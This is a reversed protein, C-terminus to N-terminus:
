FNQTQRLSSALPPPKNHMAHLSEISRRNFRIKEEAPVFQISDARFDSQVSSGYGFHVLPSM